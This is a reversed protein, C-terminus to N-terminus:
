KKIKKEQIKKISKLKLKLPILKDLFYLLKNVKGPIVVRKGKKIGNLLESAVEEATTIYLSELFTLEGQMGVFNTKTPGPALLVINVGTKKSEEILSFTLSNVYAKTAYYVAMLPGGQQFGATSSINIITGGRKSLEDYFFKTLKTVAILNIDIMAKLSQYDIEEFYGIEGIGAGNIVMDIKENQIKKLFKDIEIEDKLNVSYIDIKKSYSKKLEELRRSDRGVAIVEDGEKILLEIIARGIGGTAGTVLVKM